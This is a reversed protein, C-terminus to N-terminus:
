TPPRPPLDELHEVLTAYSNLTENLSAQLRQIDSSQLNAANLIPLMWAQMLNFQHQLVGVVEKPLRYQVILRRTEDSIEKSSASEQLQKLLPALAEASLASSANSSQSLRDVGSNLMTGISNMGNNLSHLEEVVRAVQQQAEAAEEDPAALQGIGDVLARRISRLGDNLSGLQVLVQAVESGADVGRLKINQSFTRKIDDWRNAETPTIIGMLEKFKLMNAEQDSTLTQADNEYSSLILTQLEKDNMIPVVKEAIRNMNRYSGQLKFPPETRYDDAQAASRIYERNVALVIDRVRMLKKMVAVMENLEELSYNGELNVDGHKDYQALRIVEYVDAQSRSALKNLIPNSTLSNELYSMEFVDASDGIIEGLNYVDARNALMDPIRFKEGSETYPNGAMVVAVTRGRLDYTRTHGKYVGEIKRQADCLLIFKQLFEPNCHQIDDVYIMVNDGMELALNLKEVEERAAANTAETPDLSTIHHGLAPGNIKMFFIGLRKALYEMLTTKGYCPPSVLSLLGMLDTRKQEGVVGIQKALNDGILPLYISDILKNRVFSTLVRPRFEELRMEERAADVIEKKLAVYRRFRPVVDRDYQQLKRTFRNFHLNLHTETKLGFHINYGFLLKRGVVTMDRPVCNHETTIRATEILKTEIAGFVSRRAENLQALRARMDKGQSALRNRIIEYTGGELEIPSEANAIQEPTPETM